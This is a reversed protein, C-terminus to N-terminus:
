LMQSHAFRKDDNCSIISGKSGRTVAIVAVGCKLFLSCAEVIADDDESTGTLKCGTLLALEEENMHLIDVHSLAPGIITDSKLDDVSRLAQSKTFPCEPVGNLDMAVIGGNKMSSRASIFIQALAEGQMKPLLHPYGFLFAGQITSSLDSTVEQIMESMQTATFTANSAADFFCGRRGDKYIPLVALGTRANPDRKCAGNTYKTVVNKNTGGLNTLLKILKNGSSDNGIKCLPVISHIAARTNTADSTKGYCLRALTKTAMSVSKYLCTM